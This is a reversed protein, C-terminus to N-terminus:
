RVTLRQEAMWKTIADDYEATHGFAKEALLQRYELTTAGNALIQEIARDYDAPDVLVTVSAYNKAAGRIMTPGGVDINEIGPKKKFDYLNVVVVQILPMEHASASALHQEVTRDALIGGHIVPHLTKLRGGMMEPFGTIDEVSTCPIGLEVLKKQTGGTSIIRWDRRALADFKDIGDKNTVSILLNNGNM